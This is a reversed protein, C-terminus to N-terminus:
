LASFSGNEQNLLNLEGSSIDFYGGHLQLRKDTVREEIFPYTMLNRLSNQIAAFELKQQLEEPSKGPNDQIVKKRATEAISMWKDVFGSGANSDFYNNLFAKIGGCQSHGIVVIHEIGLGCVAFEIAVNAGAYEGSTSHPPVLNAVNRMVFLEGPKASFIDAPEVRSDCCSIVMTHPSQGKDALTEYLEQYQPYLDKRFKQYGSNLADVQKM